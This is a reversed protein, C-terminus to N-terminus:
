DKVDQLLIGARDEWNANRIGHHQLTHHSRIAPRSVSINTLLCSVKRRISPQPFKPKVTYAVDRIRKEDDEIHRANDLVVRIAPIPLYTVWPLQSSSSSPSIPPDYCYDVDVVLIGRKDCEAFAAKFEQIRKQVGKEAESDEDPKSYWQSRLKRKKQKAVDKITFTCNFSCKLERLSAFCPRRFIITDLKPYDGYDSLEPLFPINLIELHPTNHHQSLKDLVDIVSSPYCSGQFSTFDFELRKLNPMGSLDLTTLYSYIAVGGNYYYGKCIFTELTPGVSRILDDTVARLEDTNMLEEFFISGELQLTKLKPAPMIARVLDVDGLSDLELKEISPNLKVSANIPSILFSFNYIGCLDLSKLLPFSNIFELFEDYNDELRIYAVRLETVTMFGQLLANKAPISLSRWYVSGVISLAKLHPFLSSFNKTGDSSEWGLLENLDVHQIAPDSTYKPWEHLELTQVKSKSFTEFPSTCLQLFRSVKRARRKRSLFQGTVHLTNFALSRSIDAWQRCVLACRNLAKINRDLHVIVLPFLEPPLSPM